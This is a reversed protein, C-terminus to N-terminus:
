YQTNRCSRKRSCISSLRSCISSSELISCSQIRRHSNSSLLCCRRRHPRRGQNQTSLRREPCRNCRSRAAAHSQGGAVGSAAVATEVEATAAV